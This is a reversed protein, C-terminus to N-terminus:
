PAPKETVSDLFTIKGRLYYTDEGSPSTLLVDYYGEPSVIAATKTDTLSLTIDSNYGTGAGATIATSFTEIVPTSSKKNEKRIESRVTYGTLNLITGSVDIDFTFSFDAGKVITLNFTAPTIMSM